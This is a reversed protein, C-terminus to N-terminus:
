NVLSSLRGILKQRAKFLRSKVLGENIKLLASIEKYSFGSYEKLIFVEKQENPMKNLEQMIINKTENLEVQASIDEGSEVELEDSDIVNFQDAKVKKSRIFMYVENRVATFIWYRISNKNRITDMREFLKLFVNQVIDEATMTDSIM